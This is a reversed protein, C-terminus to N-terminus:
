NLEKLDRLAKEKSGTFLIAKGGAAKYPMVAKVRDDILVGLNVYAAKEKSSKTYYFDPLYGFVKILAKKKQEAVNESDYKGVSTLIAVKGLTSLYKFLEVGEALPELNEYFDTKAIEAKAKNLEEETLKAPDGYKPVFAGMWDFIVGDLDFAYDM